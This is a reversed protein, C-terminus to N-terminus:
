EPTQEARRERRLVTSSATSRPGHLFTWAPPTMAAILPADEESIRFRSLAIAAPASRYSLTSGPRDVVVIPMMSAIRRWEQWRHLSALNDAGMVWVFRLRSRLRKLLTLTQVTYATGLEAELATVVIRRDRAITESKAIREAVSALEGHEKLPNGPSVMWWIRDLRARVLATEAVILHGEHPPNFSGGFLGIALGPAAAPIRQYRAM